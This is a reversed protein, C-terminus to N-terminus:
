LRDMYSLAAQTFTANHGMAVELGLGGGHAGGAPAQPVPRATTPTTQPDDREWPELGGVNLRSAAM